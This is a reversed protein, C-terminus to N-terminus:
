LEPKDNEGRQSISGPLILNWRAALIGGRSGKELYQPSRPRNSEIEMLLSEPVNFYKQFRELFWGAAAWLNAFKCRRLLTVLLDLDLVPFGKTSEILEEVGGCLRPRRLGDLLTREPGTVALLRGRREVKRTGLYRAGAKAFSGPDHLFLISQNNMVIPHRRRSSYITCQNWASHAAGLIELASHFSFIADNRAALAVLFPDPQFNVASVCPPVVAYVGRSALKLRDTKLYHKLRNITGPRGGPSCLAETAEDLSFVPHAAFFDSTMVKYPSAM